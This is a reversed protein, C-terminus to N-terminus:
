GAAWLAHISETNSYHPKIHHHSPTIAMYTCTRQAARHQQLTCTAQHSPTITYNGYVHINETFGQLATTRSPTITYNEHVYISETWGQLAATHSSTITYSICMYIRQAVRYHQLTAQHSSTITYNGHINMNYTFGQAATTYTHSSTITYSELVTHQIHLGTSSYHVHPKIHCYSPTIGMYMCSHNRHLGTSSCHSKITYNWTCAHERHWGSQQLAAQHSPVITLFPIQGLRALRLPWILAVLVFSM